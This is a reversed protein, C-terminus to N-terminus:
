RLIELDILGKNDAEDTYRRTVKFGVKEYCKIASINEESVTVKIKKLDLENYGYEIIDTLIKKGIGNGRIEQALLFRALKAEHNNWDIELLECSGIVKDGFLVTFHCTKETSKIRSVIQDETLPFEYVNDNSWQRLFKEDKGLVIDVLFEADEEIMERIKLVYIVGKSESKCKISSLSSLNLSLIGKSFTTTDM